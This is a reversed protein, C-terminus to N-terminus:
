HRSRREQEIRLRDRLRNYVDRAMQEIDVGGGDEGPAAEEAAVDGNEPQAPATAETVGATQTEAMASSSLGLLGAMLLVMTTRTANATFM